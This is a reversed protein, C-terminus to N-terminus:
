RRSSCRAQLAFPPARHAPACCSPTALVAGKEICCCQTVMTSDSLQQPTIVHPVTSVVDLGVHHCLQKKLWGQRHVLVAVNWEVRATNRGAGVIPMTSQADPPLQFQFPYQYTGLGVAGGSNQVLSATAQSFASTEWATKHETKRNDGSGTKRTYGVSTVSRGALQVDISDFEFPQMVTLQVYGVIIEGAVYLQKETAVDIRAKGSLESQNNGM